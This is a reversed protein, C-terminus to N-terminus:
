VFLKKASEIIKDAEESSINDDELTELVLHCFAIINKTRNKWLKIDTKKSKASELLDNIVQVIYKKAFYKILTKM